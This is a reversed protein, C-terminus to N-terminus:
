GCFFYIFAEEVDPTEDAAVTRLILSVALTSPIGAASIVDFTLFAM